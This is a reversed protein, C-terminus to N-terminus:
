FDSRSSYCDHSMSSNGVNTQRREVKVLGALEVLVNETELRDDGVGYLDFFTSAKSMDKEIDPAILEDSKKSGCSTGPM